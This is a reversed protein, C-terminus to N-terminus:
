GDGAGAVVPGGCDASHPGMCAWTLESWCHSMSTESDAIGALLYGETMGNAFAADRIQAARARRQAATLNSGKTAVDSADTHPEPAGLCGGLFLVLAISARM